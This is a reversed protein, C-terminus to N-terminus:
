MQVQRKRERKVDKREVKWKSSEVTGEEPQGSCAAFYNDTTLPCNDPFAFANLFEFANL